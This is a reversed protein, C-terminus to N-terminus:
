INFKGVAVGRNIDQFHEVEVETIFEEALLDLWAQTPGTNALTRNKDDIVVDDVAVLTQKDAFKQCNKIDNYAYDYTHNGDIYIFSFIKNEPVTSFDKLALISDKFIVKLRNPFKINLFEVGFKCYYWYGIDISTIKSNTSSSLFIESSHGANFGIELVDKFNENYKNLFDSQLQSQTSNGEIIRINNTKYYNALNNYNLSNSNKLKIYKSFTLINLRLNLINKKFRFYKHKLRTKLKFQENMRNSITIM